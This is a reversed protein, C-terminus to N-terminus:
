QLSIVEIVPMINSGFTRYDVKYRNRDYYFGYNEELYEVTAPYIGEIAYCQVAARTVARQVANRQESTTTQELSNIGYLMMIAIACFMMVPMKLGSLFSGRPQKKHVSQFRKM